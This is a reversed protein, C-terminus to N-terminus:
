PFQILVVLYTAIGGVFSCLVSRNIDFFGFATFRFPRSNIQHSFLLLEKTVAADTPVSLMLHQLHDATRSCEASTKHCLMVVCIIKLAHATIWGLKCICLLEKNTAMKEIANESSLIFRLVFYFNGTVDLFVAIFELLIQFGFIDNILDALYRLSWHQERLNRINALVKTTDKEIQSIPSKEFMCNSVDANFLSFIHFNRESVLNSHNNKMCEILRKNLISLRQYILYVINCFQIMVIFNILYIQYGVCLRNNFTGSASYVFYNFLTFALYATCFITIEIIVFIYTRRYIFNRDFFFKSDFLHIKNLLKLLKKANLLGGMLLSFISSATSTIWYFLNSALSSKSSHQYHFEAKWSIAAVTGFLIASMVLITYIFGCKTTATRRIKGHSNHERVFKFPALGLIKSFYYLPMIASYIDPFTTIKKFMPM